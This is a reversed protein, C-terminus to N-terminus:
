LKGEPNIRVSRLFKVNMDRAEQTLEKGISWVVFQLNFDPGNVLTNQYTINLGEFLAGFTITEGALGDVDVNEVGYIPIDEPRSGSFTAANQIIINRMFAQDLGDDAGLEEHIIGAYIRANHRFQRVFETGDTGLPRWDLISGCFTLRNDIPVCTAETNDNANAYRWTKDNLLEVRKGGIVARGIVDQATVASALMILVVTLIRIM